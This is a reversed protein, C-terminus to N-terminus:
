ASYLVFHISFRHSRQICYYPFIASVNLLQLISSFSQSNYSRITFIKILHQTKFKNKQVKFHTLYKPVGQIYVQM